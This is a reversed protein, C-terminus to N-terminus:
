LATIEDAGMHFMEASDEELLGNPPTIQVSEINPELDPESEADSSSAAVLKADDDKVEVVAENFHVKKAYDPEPEDCQDLVADEDSESLHKRCRPPTPPLVLGSTSGTPFPDLDNLDPNFEPPPPLQPDLSFELSTPPQPLVDSDEHTPDHPFLNSQPPLPSPPPTELHDLTPSIPPPPPLLYKANSRGLSLSDKKETEEEPPLNVYDTEDSNKEENINRGIVVQGEDDSLDRDNEDHQLVVTLISNVPESEVRDECWTSVEGKDAEEEDFDLVAEQVDEETTVEIVAPSGQLAELAKAETEEDSEYAPNICTTVTNYDGNAALQETTMSGSGSYDSTEEEMELKVDQNDYIPTESCIREFLRIKKEYREYKMCVVGACIIGVLLIVGAIVILAISVDTLKKDDPQSVKEYKKWLAHIKDIKDNVLKLLDNTSVPLSNNTASIYMASSDGFPSYTRNFYDIKVDAKIIKSLEGQIWVKDKELLEKAVPVSLRVTGNRGRLFVKVSVFRLLSPTGGDAAQVFVEIFKQDQNPLTKLTMLGSSADISFTSADKSGLISYTIEANVGLDKDTATVNGISSGTTADEALSFSYRDEVFVPPNDNIDTLNVIVTVTCSANCPPGLVPMPETTNITFSFQSKSERDLGSSNAVSIKGTSADIDFLGHGSVIRYSFKGNDGEDADIATVVLVETGALTHEPITITYETEKFLPRNDNVDLVLVSLTATVTGRNGDAQYAQVTLLYSPTKERDLIENLKVRGDTTNIEIGLAVPIPDSLKYNIETNIGFDQDFAEIPPDTFLWKDGSVPENERVNLTYTRNKFAPDHDDIDKIKIRLTTTGTKAPKGESNITYFSINQSCDEDTAETTVNGKFTILHTKAKSLELISVNYNSLPFKPDYEDVPLIDIIFSYSSPQSNNKYEVTGDIYKDMCLKTDNDLDLVTATMLRTGNLDLLEPHNSNKITLNTAGKFDKILYGKPETEKITIRNNCFGFSFWDTLLLVSLLCETVKM